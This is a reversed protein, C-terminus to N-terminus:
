VYVIRIRATLRGKSDASYSLGGRNNSHLRLRENVNRIGFGHTVKLDVEKYELYANLLAPDAGKGTDTVEICSYEEETWARITITIGRDRRTIGHRISNEVLPQLTFKPIIIEAKSSDISLILEIKQRFRLTYISIYERINELETSINVTENPNTISYRMLNAISEVTAAIDDEGRMLAITNVANMANLIFHPNMQAQLAKLESLRRQEASIIIQENLQNNRLILSGFSMGLRRIELPGGISFDSVSLHRGDEMNDIKKTLQLVPSSLGRSLLLSLVAGIILFILSCFLYPIMMTHLQAQVDSYPTLFLFQLGWNLRRFSYIYKKGDIQISKGTVNQLPLNPPQIFDPMGESYYLRNGQSNFLLFGSNKTIPTFSFISSINQLPLYGLLVGVGDKLYTNPYYRNQLKRAFCLHSGEDNIFIYQRSTQKMAYQYWTENQVSSGSFLRSVGLISNETDFLTSVSLAPNVYLIASFHNNALTPQSNLHYAIRNQLQGKLKLDFLPDLGVDSGLLTGLTEDSTYNYVLQDLTRTFAACLDSNATVITNQSSLLHKTISARFLLYTVTNLSLLITSIICGIILFNRKTITM